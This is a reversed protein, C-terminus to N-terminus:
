AKATPCPSKQNGRGVPCHRGQSRHGGPLRLWPFRHPKTTSWRIYLARSVKTMEKREGYQQGEGPHLNLYCHPLIIVVFGKLFWSIIQLKQTLQIEYCYM